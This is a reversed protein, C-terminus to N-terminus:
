VYQSRDSQPTIEETLARDLLIYLENLSDPPPRHEPEFVEKSNDALLDARSSAELLLRAIRDVDAAPSGAKARQCWSEIADKTMGALPENRGFISNVRTLFDRELSVRAEFRTRRTGSDM